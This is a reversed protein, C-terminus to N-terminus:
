HFIPKLEDQNGVFLISSSEKSWKKSNVLSWFLNHIIRRVFLLVIVGCLIKDWEGVIGCARNNTEICGTSWSPRTFWCWASHSHSHSPCVCLHFSKTAFAIIAQLGKDNKYGKLRQELRWAERDRTDVTGDVKTQVPYSM